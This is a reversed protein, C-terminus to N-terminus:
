GIILIMVGALVACVILSGVLGRVFGRAHFAYDRYGALGETGPLIFLKLQWTCVLLWDIIVLDIVNWVQVIIFLSLFVTGFTLPSAVSQLRMVSFILLALIALLTLGGFRRRQRRTRDDLPGVAAQIDAPARATWIRPNVWFTIGIMATMLLSLWLGFILSHSLM